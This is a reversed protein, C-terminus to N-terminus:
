RPRQQEETESVSNRKDRRHLLEATVCVAVLVATGIGFGIWGQAPHYGLSATLTHLDM